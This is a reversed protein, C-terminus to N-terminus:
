PTVTVTWATATRTFTVLHESNGTCNFKLPGAPACTAALGGGQKAEVANSARQILCGDAIARDCVRPDNTTLTPACVALGVRSVCLKTTTWPKVWLTVRESLGSAQITASCIFIRKSTRCTPSKIFGHALWIGNSSNALPIMRQVVSAVKAPTWVTTGSAPAALALSAAAALFIMKM